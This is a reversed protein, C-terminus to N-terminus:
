TRPGPRPARRHEALAGLDAENAVAVPASAHTAAALAVVVGADRVTSVFGDHRRVVGVVAVGIGILADHRWHDAVGDALEVLDAVIDDLTFRGGDTGRRSSLTAM